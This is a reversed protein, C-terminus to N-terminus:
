DWRLLKCWNRIQKCSEASFTLFLFFSFFGQINMSFFWAFSEFLLGDGDRQVYKSRVYLLSKKVCNSPFFPRSRLQQVTLSSAAFFQFVSTHWSLLMLLPFQEVDDHRHDMMISGGQCVEAVIYDQTHRWPLSGYIVDYTSVYM